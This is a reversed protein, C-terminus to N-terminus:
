PLEKTAKAIAARAADIYGDMWSTNYGHGVDDAADSLAVLARLLDPAGAILRANAQAPFGDEWRSWGRHVTAVPHDGAVGGGNEYLERPDRRWIKGDADVFWPGPTHKSM